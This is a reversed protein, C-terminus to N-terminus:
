EHITEYLILGIAVGLIPLGLVYFALVLSSDRLVTSEPMFDLMTYLMWVLLGYVLLIPAGYHFRGYDRHVISELRSVERVPERELVEGCRSCYEDDEELDAGCAPCEM